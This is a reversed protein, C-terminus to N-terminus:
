AARAKVKGSGGGAARSPSAAKVAKRAPTGPKRAKRKKPEAPGFLMSWMETIASAGARRLKRQTKARARRFPDHM